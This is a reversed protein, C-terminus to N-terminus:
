KMRAFVVDFNQQMAAQYYFGTLVDKVPDYDLKYTSGPYGVDQLEVFVKTGIGSWSAEAVSVNIPRPNYYGADMKGNSDINRIEIVYGGDTRIWRGVLNLLDRQKNASVDKLNISEKDDTLTTSEIVSKKSSIMAIVVIILCIAGLLAFILPFGAKKKPRGKASEKKKSRNKATM